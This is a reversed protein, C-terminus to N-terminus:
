SQLKPGVLRRSILCIEEDHGFTTLANQYVTRLAVRQIDRRRQPYVAEPAFSLQLTDGVVFGIHPIPESEGM